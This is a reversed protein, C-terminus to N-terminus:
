GPASYHARLDKARALLANLETPSILEHTEVTFAGTSSIALSLAGAHASDAVDIIAFGDFEGFMWYYSEVKGGAAEVLRRVAAGRD